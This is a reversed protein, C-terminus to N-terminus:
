RLIPLELLASDSRNGSFDIARAFVRLTSRGDDPVSVALEYPPRALTGLPQVGGADFRFFSVVDIGDDDSAAAVLVVSQGALVTPSSAAITVSPARDDFRYGSGFGISVGGGCAGLLTALLALLGPRLWRAVRWTTRDSPQLLPM